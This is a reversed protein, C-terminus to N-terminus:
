LTFNRKSLIQKLRNKISQYQQANVPPGSPGSPTPHKEQIIQDILDSLVEVLKDGLVVPETASDAGLYIKPSTVVADSKSSLLIYADSDVSFNKSTTLFIGRNSMMIIENTRANFLIRDSFIAIQKGKYETPPEDKINIKIGSQKFSLAEDTTLWIATDTDLNEDVVAYKPQKKDILGIKITPLNTEPNNGLRINNGFRGQVVIDGEKPRLIGISKANDKFTDGLSVDNSSNTSNPIKTAETARYDDSKAAPSEVVNGDTLNPFANNNIRNDLNLPSIYYYKSAFEVVYVIEHLVPYMKIFSNIPYAVPNNPGPKGTDTTLRFTIQGMNEAKQKGYDISLVEARVFQMSAFQSEGAAVYRAGQFSPIFIQDGGLGIGSTYINKSEQVM